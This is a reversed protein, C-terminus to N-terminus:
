LSLGDVMKLKEVFANRESFHGAETSCEPGMRRRIRRKWMWSPIMITTIM